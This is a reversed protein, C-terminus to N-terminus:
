RQLFRATVLGIQRRSILLSVPLLLALAVGRAIPNVTFAAILLAVMLLGGHRVLPGILGEGDRALWIFIVADIASRITWVIACGILGFARASWYVGAFFPLLQAAYNATIEKGRQEALLRSQSLSAIASLWVGCIIVEGIMRSQDAITQGVWLRLFPYLILIVVMVVPTLLGMMAERTRRVRLAIDTENRALLPFITNAVSGSIIMLRNTLDFPVSYAALAVPGVVASIVTRDGTNLVAGLLSLVAPWRGFDVLARLPARAFADRFTWALTRRLAVILIFVQIWRVAMVTALAIDLRAGVLTCAGLPLLQLAIGSSALIASLQHFRHLGQYTGTLLTVLAMAPITACAFGVSRTMEGPLTQGIDPLLGTLWPTLLIGGLAVLVSVMGCFALSSAYLRQSEASTVPKAFFYASAKGFGLDLFCAYNSLALILVFTGYRPPGLLHLYFPVSLLAAGLPLAYAM